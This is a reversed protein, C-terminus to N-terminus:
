AFCREFFMNTRAIDGGSVFDDPYGDTNDQRYCLIVPVGNVIKKRKFYGYLDINADVDFNCCQITPPAKSFWHHVTSEITKCPGCWEAGFKIIFKGPNSAILANFEHVNKISTILPLPPMAYYYVTGNLCKKAFVFNINQTTNQNQYMNDFDFFSSM